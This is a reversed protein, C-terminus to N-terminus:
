WGRGGLRAEGEIELGSSRVRALNQRQRTVLSSTSELTVNAFADRVQAM